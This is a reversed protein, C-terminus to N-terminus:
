IPCNTLCYLVFTFTLPGQCDAIRLLVTAICYCFIKKWTIYPLIDPLIFRFHFYASRPLRCDETICNFSHLVQLTLFIPKKKTPSDMKNKNKKPPFLTKKLPDFIKKKQSPPWIKNKFIKFILTLDTVMDLRHGRGTQSLVQERHFKQWCNIIRGYFTQTRIINHRQRRRYFYPKRAIVKTTTSRNNHFNSIINTVVVSLNTNIKLTTAGVTQTFPVLLPPFPM